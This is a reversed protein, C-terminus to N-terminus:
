KLKELDKVLDDWMFSIQEFISYDDYKSINHSNMECWYHVIRYFDIENINYGRLKVVKIFENLEGFIGNLKSVKQRRIYELRNSSLCSYCYSLVKNEKVKGCKCNVVTVRKERCSKCLRTSNLKKEVGCDQCNSYQRTEFCDLCLRSTNHKKGNGCKVCHTYIKSIMEKMNKFNYILIINTGIVLTLLTKMTKLRM